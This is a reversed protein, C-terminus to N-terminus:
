TSQIAFLLSLLPTRTGLTVLTGTPLGLGHMVQAESVVWIEGLM